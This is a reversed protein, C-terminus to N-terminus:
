ADYTRVQYVQQAGQVTIPLNRQLHSHSSCSVRAAQADARETSNIALEALTKVAVELMAMLWHIHIGRGRWVAESRTIGKSMLSFSPEFMGCM